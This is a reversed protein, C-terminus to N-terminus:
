KQLLGCTDEAWSYQTMYEGYFAPAGYQLYSHYDCNILNPDVRYQYREQCLVNGAGVSDLTNRLEQMLHRFYDMNKTDDSDEPWLVACIQKGTMGAGNRDVLVALLEKAKTRKFTLAQGKHLVEFTGFCKVTLVKNSVPQKKIHDLERQVAEATIPKILYGSCHLHIADLAYQEYGTCFVIKCEPQLQGIREALALGGMGRMSIDLFAVDAHDNQLWELAATCTSFSVVQRIDPSASVAETLAQLMPREDDVAIAIM